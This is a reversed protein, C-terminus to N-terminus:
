LAVLGVLIIVNSYPALMCIARRLRPTGGISVFLVSRVYEAELDTITAALRSNCSGNWGNLASGYVEQAFVFPSLGLTSPLVIEDLPFGFM